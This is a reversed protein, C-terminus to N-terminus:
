NSHPTVITDNEPATTTLKEQIGLKSTREKIPKRKLLVYMTPGGRGLAFLGATLGSDRERQKM